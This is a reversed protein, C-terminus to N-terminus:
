SGQIISTQIQNDNLAVDYFKMEAINGKFFRTDKDRVGTRVTNTAIASRARIFTFRHLASSRGNIFLSLRKHKYTAAFHVWEETPLVEKSSWRFRHDLILRFRRTDIWIQVQAGYSILPEDQGGSQVWCMLTLSTKTNLGGMNPFEIYSSVTGYFMYAGGPKNYPENAISVDGVIGNPQRNEKQAAKYGANLPYFAVPEPVM